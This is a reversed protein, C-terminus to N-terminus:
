AHDDLAGLVLSEKLTPGRLEWNPKSSQVLVVQNFSMYAQCDNMGYSLDNTGFELTITAHAPPTRLTFRM